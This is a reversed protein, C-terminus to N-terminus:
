WETIVVTLIQTYKGESKKVSMFSFMKRLSFSRHQGAQSWIEPSLHDEQRMEQTAPVIPVYWQV